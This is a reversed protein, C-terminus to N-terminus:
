SRVMTRSPMLPAIAADVIGNSSRAFYSTRERLLGPLEFDRAFAGAGCRSQQTELLYPLRYRRRARERAIKRLETKCDHSRDTSRHKDSTPGAVQAFSALSLCVGGIPAPVESTTYLLAGAVRIRRLAEFGNMLATNERSEVTSITRAAALSCSETSYTSCRFRCSAYKLLMFLEVGGAEVLLMM